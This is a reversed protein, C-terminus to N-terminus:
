HALKNVLWEPIPVCREECDKPKWNWQPKATVRVIKQGLDVDNWTMHAVEQERCGTGLFFGFITQSKQNGARLLQAIEAENYADVSKQTYRPLDRRSLLGEIGFSRLFTLVV